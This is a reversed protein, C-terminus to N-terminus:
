AAAYSLMWADLALFAKAYRGAGPDPGDLWRLRVPDKPELFVM